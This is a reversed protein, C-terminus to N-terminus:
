PVFPSIDGGLRAVDRVLATTVFAHAPDALLAILEMGAEECKPRVSSDLTHVDSESRLAVAYVRASTESVLRGLNGDFARVEVTECKTLARRARMLREEIGFLPEHSPVSEVAVIVRQCLVAVRVILDVQGRIIPDFSGTVLAVKMM